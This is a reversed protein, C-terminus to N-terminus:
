RGQSPYKRVKSPVPSAKKRAIKKTIREPKKTSVVARQIKAKTKADKFFRNTTFVNDDQMESSVINQMLTIADPILKEAMVYDFPDIEKAECLEHVAFLVHYGGDVLFLLSSDTPESKKVKRQLERKREQINGYLKLSVLLHQFVIPSPNMNKIRVRGWNGIMRVM